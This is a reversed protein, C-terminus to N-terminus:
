GNKKKENVFIKLMEIMYDLKAHNMGPYVGLWLSRNMIIDTNTLEGVVRYGIGNERMEDFCPHKIYNGSFLNRTQINKGELYTALEERTFGANDRITLLFGFWSPNSGKTAEPLVFVNELDKLGSKLYEWNEKRAKIFDPLKKIQACGVSAQLDTAKLNYGFHSYVYKHDYGM